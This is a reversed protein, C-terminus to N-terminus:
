FKPIDINCWIKKWQKLKNKVDLRAYLQKNFYKSKRTDTDVQKLYYIATDESFEGERISGYFDHYFEKPALYGVLFLLIDHISKRARKSLINRRNGSVKDLNLLNITGHLKDILMTFMKKDLVFAIDDYDSNINVM